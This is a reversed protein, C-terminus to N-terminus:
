IFNYKTRINKFENIEREVYGWKAYFEDGFIVM